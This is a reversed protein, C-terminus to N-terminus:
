TGGNRGNGKGHGKGRGNEVKGKRKGKGKDRERKWDEKCNCKSTGIQVNGKKALTVSAILRNNVNKVGEAGTSCVFL